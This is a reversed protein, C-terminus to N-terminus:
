QEETMLEGRGKFLMRHLLKNTKKFSNSPSISLSLTDKVRQNMGWIAVNALAPSLDSDATHFEKQTKWTPSLPALVQGDEAAKEPM